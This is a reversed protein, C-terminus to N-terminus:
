TSKFQQKLTYFAHLLEERSLLLRSKQQVDIPKVFVADKREMEELVDLLGTQQDMVLVQHENVQKDPEVSVQALIDQLKIVQLELRFRQADFFKRVFDNVPAFLLDKPHGMQQIKGKDMLAIEDALMIAESVDHTVMVMTKQRLTDLQDFEQQIQRKTIPDLAGFPEDLLILPPDAALARALGVRQQQGGSLEHPYRNGLDEPLSLLVLLERCRDQIKQAPWRLLGPVLGINQSVTYHPFLGIHQIVYGIRRRIAEPQHDRIDKGDIIVQGDDPEILRNIMKLTTTKGSGSTGLLVLTNGKRVHFSVQDVVLKGDFYKCLGKVEIM